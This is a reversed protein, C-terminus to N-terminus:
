GLTSVKVKKKNALRFSICYMNKGPSVDRVTHIALDYLDRRHSDLAARCRDVAPSPDNKPAFSYVYLHVNDAVDAFADLFEPASAPLNLIACDINSHTSFIDHIFERADQHYVHLLSTSAASSSEDGSLPLIKNLKQNIRLYKVSEENLDNAYVTLGRKALPIAFPGVGAMCDAVVQYGREDAIERVLRDHEGSLRSNWYVTQYDLQFLCNHEQVTTISWGPTDIGAIVSMPFTRYVTAISSTKNVVTKLCVHKDLLIQGIWYQYPLLEARLNLHAIHGVQEVASPIERITSPLLKRLVEDTTLDDYTRILRMTPESTPITFDIPGMTTTTTTADPLQKNKKAKTKKKKRKHDSSGISANTTTVTSQDQQHVATTSVVAVAAAAPQGALRAAVDSMSVNPILVIKRRDNGDPFIIKRKPPIWEHLHRKATATDRVAVSIVPFDVTEDFLRKDPFSSLPLIMAKAEDNDNNNVVTVPLSAFVLPPDM